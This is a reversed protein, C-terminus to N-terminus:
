SFEVCQFTTNWGMLMRTLQDWTQLTLNIETSGDCQGIMDTFNIFKDQILKDLMIGAITKGDCFHKDRMATLNMKQDKSMGQIAIANYSM